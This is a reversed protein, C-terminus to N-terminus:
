RAALFRMLLRAVVDGLFQLLDTGHEQQFRAKDEAAFALLGRWAGDGLPLLVLAESGVRAAEDGYVVEAEPLAPRLWIGDRGPTNDLGLYAEIGGAPMAVVRPGLGTDLDGVPGPMAAESELVLRMTDVALIQPADILLARLFDALGPQELLLVVVRQVQSTGALNEYAAAVVSRHTAELRALRAELRDVLAGRLDTVQRDTQPLADVLARIVSLDDLVIEPSARLQARVEDMANATLSSM